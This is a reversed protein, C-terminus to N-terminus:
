KSSRTLAYLLLFYSVAYTIVTSLVLGKLGYIPVLTFSAAFKIFLNGVSIIAFIKYSRSSLLAQSVVLAGFYFPVQLLGYRLVNGVAETNEPTFAGREFLIRVAWSATPWGIILVVGGLVFMVQAWRKALSHITSSKEAQLGSFVPLTARAVATAGLSLILSLIRNSYGLTAIAGPGLHAAFFQDIVSTVSQLVQGILMISMGGWFLRWVPSQLSFGPLNIAHHKKLQIVVAALQLLYGILLAWVLVAIHSSSVIMVLVLMAVAPIGEFLTNSHRGESMTLVSGYHIVFGLPILMVLWPTIALALQRTGDPLGSLSTHFLGGLVAWGLLGLVVGILITLGLLEARFKPLDGPAEVRLRAALPVYVVFLISYWISIPLSVLNFVFLYADVVDSVGYRWAVAVEKAAAVIKALFVFGMILSMDRAIKKHGSDLGHFRLMLRM